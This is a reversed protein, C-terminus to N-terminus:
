TLAGMKVEQASLLNKSQRYIESASLAIPSTNNQVFQVLTGGAGAAEEAQALSATYRDIAKAADELATRSPNIITGTGGTGPAAPGTAAGGSAQEQKVQELLQAAQEKEQIARDAAQSALQAQAEAYDLWEMAKEADTDALREAEALARAVEASAASAKAEDAAARAAMIDAKGQTSAANYAVEDDRAQQEARQEELIEGIRARVSAAAEARAQQYYTLAEQQAQQAQAALTRAADADKKAQARMKKAAEKNKKQLKDAEESEARSKALMAQSQSALDVSLDDKIQARGLADAAVFAKEDVVKQAAIDAKAQAEDARTQIRDAIKREQEAKRQAVNARHQAAKKAEKSGAKKVKRQLRNAKTEAKDARGSGIDARAQILSAGYQAGQFAQQLGVVSPAIVGDVTSVVANAMALAANVALLTTTEIGKALGQGISAGIPIITRAPSHADLLDRLGKPVLAALQSVASRVLSMGTTLLGGTLGDIISGALRVGAARLEGSHKDVADAVANITKIMLNAGADALDGVRNALTNIFKTVLTIASDTIGPIHREASKLFSDILVFAVEIFKPVYKMIVGIATDLLTEFTKALAPVNDRIVGLLSRFLEGFATRIKKANNALTQLFAVFARAMGQAISPLLKVFAQIAKVMIAIGATGAAVLIALGTSFALMGVGALALGGGLFLVAVGLGMIVPTVPTLLYGAVGLIVFVAALALLGKAIAEWSMGGLTTLVPTLVRLAAAVVLLAAAGAMAGSMAIMAVSILLLAGALTTLGKGIEEWSMGGMSELVASISTLAVGVLVLGAATFIMNPPMLNMAAAIIVLSGALSVLGQAIDEWSLVSMSIISDGITKLAQGLIVLAAAQLLMGKPMLQMAGAILGLATSLGAVGKAIEEWTLEGMSGIARAMLNLAFGLLVLAGAQFLINKPMLRLGVSIGLLSSAIGAIGKAIEVWSLHAMITMATAFENLAVGIAMLGVAQMAMNKPMIRMALAIATLSGAIGTLGKGIEEWSLRSMVALAASLILISTALLSLSAAIIPVKLFGASGSIQTLIAMSGLLEGFGVAMASLASTLKDSDILSLAVVSATLIGIAIAIKMLTDAKVNNQMTTISGTLAGFTDKISEFLGGGLDLSIGNSFFKKIMLLIGGLLGANIVDFVASFSGSDISKALADGLSGFANGIADIAPGMFEAVGKFFNGIAEGAREAFSALPSIRDSLRGFSQGVADAASKSFGGFLAAIAEGVRMIIKLPFQLVSSLGSFFKTLGGGSELAENFKVIMDGVGGTFELFGGSGGLIVGLLDGIVGAVGSIIKWGIDLAAFLGAFTRKLNEVTEESPILSETFDKFSSTMSMLSEATAPPFIDRFAGTFSGVIKGLGTFMNGFAGLLEERGGLKAWGELTDIFGTSIKTLYGGPGVISFGIDSWLKKSQKFDGLIVRFASAWTSGISEKIVGMLQPLTKIKTAADFATRALDQIEKIQKETYGKAKLEADSYGGSIQKLTEVLAEGTLWSQQGPQAMISERFSVGNVTLKKMPGELKIAGEAISGMNQGTRALATQFIKGGMGANVVSNWDQLGVKGASIAQSLQYMATSAQQSNSGSLAALNAIGKISQTATDLDVGAATFTGINKAMESFNYITQDAYENLEDLYKNVTKVSKGTNSMITQVSNLNTTYEKFGDMIPQLTFSKLMNLGAMTMKSAITAIAAVGAVKLASFKDKVGEVGSALGSLGKSKGANALTRDLDTLSKKTDTVGQTFQKNNFTMNVVRDDVSSM